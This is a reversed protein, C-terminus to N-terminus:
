DRQVSLMQELKIIEYGERELKPIEDRLVELTNLRYHGIAIANGKDRAVNRLVRLQSRIAKPSDTNDLFVGRALIPLGIERGLEPVVSAKTTYSDLFFLGRRKLDTLITTMMARDATGRSGMHNNVGIHNPVSDLDHALMDLVDSRSMTDVILGRGPVKNEVTDLPLHLIVDAGTKKSLEGYYRSYKVLPLIAYTVTNGLAKLQATYFDNYGIDDIVFAIKPAHSAPHTRRIQLGQPKRFIDPPHIILLYGFFACLALALFTFFAKKQKRTLKLKISFLKKRTM